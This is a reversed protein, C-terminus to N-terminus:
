TLTCVNKVNRLGQDVIAPWPPWLARCVRYMDWELAIPEAWAVRLM